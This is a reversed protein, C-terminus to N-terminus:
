RAVASRGTGQEKVHDVIKSIPELINSSLRLHLSRKQCQCSEAFIEWMNVKVEAHVYEGYQLNCSTRPRKIAITLLVNRKRSTKKSCASIGGDKSQTKWVPYKAGPQVRLSRPVARDQRKRGEATFDL